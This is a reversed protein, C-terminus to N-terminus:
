IVDCEMRLKCMSLANNAFACHWATFLSLGFAYGLSSTHKSVAMFGQGGTSYSNYVGGSQNKTTIITFLETCTCTNVTVEINNICLQLYFTRCHLSFIYTILWTEFGEPFSFVM